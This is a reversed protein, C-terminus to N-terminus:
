LIICYKKKPIHRLIKLINKKTKEKGNIDPKTSSYSSRYAELMKLAEQNSQKIQQHIKQQQLQNNLNSDGTEMPKAALAVGQVNTVPNATVKSPKAALAVGQVNTTPNRMSPRFAYNRFPGVVNEIPRSTTYDHVPNVVNEIPSSTTYDHVPPFVRRM